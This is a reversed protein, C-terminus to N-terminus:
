EEDKKQAKGMLKEFGEFWKSKIGDPWDPDFTPFKALLQSVLDGSVPPQEVRTEISEKRRRGKRGNGKRRPVGAPPGAKVAAMHPSLTINADKAAGLFFSVVKKVTSGKISAGSRLREELEGPTARSLDFSNAFLYPYSARIVNYLAMAKAKDGSAGVLSQLQATPVGDAKILGLYKLAALLAAQSGYSMSTMLTRDIRSPMAHRRLGDLFNRFTRYAVYPPVAKEQTQTEVM